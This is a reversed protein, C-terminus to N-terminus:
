IRFRYRKVQLQKPIWGLAIPWNWGFFKSRWSQIVLYVYICTNALRLELASSWLAWCGSKSNQTVNMKLQGRCQKKWGQPPAPDIAKHVFNDPHHCLAHNFWHLRRMLSRTTSLIHQLLFLCRSKLHVTALLCYHFLCYLNFVLNEYTAQEWWDPIVTSPHLCSCHCIHIKIGIKIEIRSCLWSRLHWFTFRASQICNNVEEEQDTTTMISGLYKFCDVEELVKGAPVIPPKENPFFGAILFKTKQAHINIGIKSVCFQM